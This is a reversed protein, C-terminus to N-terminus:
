LDDKSDGKIEAIGSKNSFKSTVNGTCYITYLAVIFTPDKDFFSLLGIAVMAILFLIVKRSKFM